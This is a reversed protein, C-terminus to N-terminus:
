WNRVADLGRLVLAREHDFSTQAQAEAHAFIADIASYLDDREETEIFPSRFGDIANFAEGYERGAAELQSENPPHEDGLLIELIARRTAKYQAVSKKFRLSSIHARGDWDRLPNDRNEALWDISRPASIEVDTGNALERQWVKRMASAYESPVSHLFLQELHPVNEPLLCQAADMGFLDVLILSRLRSLRNLASANTLTGLTGSLYLSVLNPFARVLGVCDLSDVETVRLGWISDSPARSELVLALEAGTLVLRGPHGTSRDGSDWRRQLALQVGLGWGVTYGNSREPHLVRANGVVRCGRPLLWAVNLHALQGHHAHHSLRLPVLEGLDDLSRPENPASWDLQLVGAWQREPDLNTVQAAAWEGLEESYAVVVDGPTLPRLPTRLVQRLTDITSGSGAHHSTM